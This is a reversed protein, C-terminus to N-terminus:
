SRLKDVQERTLEILEAAGREAHLSTSAVNTTDAPCFDFRSKVADVEITRLLWPPFNKKKVCTCSTLFAFQPALM